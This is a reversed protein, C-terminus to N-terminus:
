TLNVAHLATMPLPDLADQVLHIANLVSRVVPTWYGAMSLVSEFVITNMYCLHHFVVQATESVM